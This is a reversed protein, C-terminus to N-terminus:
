SWVNKARCHGAEHRLRQVLSLREVSGTPCRSCMDPVSVRSSPQGARLGTVTGVSSDMQKRERDGSVCTRDYSEFNRRVSKNLLTFKHEGCWFAFYNPV